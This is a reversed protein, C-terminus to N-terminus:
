WGVGDAEGGAERYVKDVYGIITALYIATLAM